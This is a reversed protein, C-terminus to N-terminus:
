FDIGPSSTESDPRSSERKEQWWTMLATADRASLASRFECLHREFQTLAELVSSRNALFIEAWLGANAGAVRTGDRYAGAAFEVLDRPVTSALAASVAHPLHSTFALVHDHDKPSMEVVRLGLAEWFLRARNRKEPSTHSTPTLICTRGVFLDATAAAVGNRESGAIPHAGVFKRAAVASEEVRAVIAAKTSGADTVLLNEPGHHAANCCDEAIRGVPTCVVVVNAFEVAKAVDTEAQDIAGLRIAEALKEPNRGVGIIKQALGRARLTLGISGGILGVGLIAVTELPEM